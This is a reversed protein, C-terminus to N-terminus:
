VIYNFNCPFGFTTLKESANMIGVEVARLLNDGRLIAATMCGIFVDGCGIDDGIDRTSDALGIPIDVLGTEHDVVRVPNKGDTIIISGWRDGGDTSDSNLSKLFDIENSFKFLQKLRLYEFNNIVLVKKRGIPTLFKITSSSCRPAVAIFSSSVAQDIDSILARNLVNSEIESMLGKQYDILLLAKLGGNGAKGTDLITDVFDRAVNSNAVKLDTTNSTASQTELVKYNNVYIFENLVAASSGVCFLGNDTYMGFKIMLGTLARYVNHVGGAQNVRNKVKFRRPRDSNEHHELFTYVDNVPDGAV